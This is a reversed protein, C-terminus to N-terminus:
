ELKMPATWTRQVGTSDWIDYVRSYQVHEFSVTHWSFDVPRRRLTFPPSERLLDFSGDGRVFSRKM